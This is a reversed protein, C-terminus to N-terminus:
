STSAQVVTALKIPKRRTVTLPTVEDLFKRFMELDTSSPDKEQNPFHGFYGEIDDGFIATRLVPGNRKGLTLVYDWNVDLDPTPNAVRVRVERLIPRDPRLKWDTKKGIGLFGEKVVVKEHSPYSSVSITPQSTLPFTDHLNAHPRDKWQEVLSAPLDFAKTQDPSYATPAASYHYEADKVSRDIRLEIGSILERRHREEAEGFTEGKM